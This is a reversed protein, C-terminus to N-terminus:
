AITYGLYATFLRSSSAVVMDYRTGSIIRKVQKFYTSFSRIQDQMGSRHRPIAIRHVNYSEREEFQPADADFSSYRNPLTTIVDIEAVEKVQHALEHVLPSNRFSGACLDPEFYFTLYLIKKMCAMFTYLNKAMLFVVRGIPDLYV